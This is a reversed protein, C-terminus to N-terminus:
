AKRIPPMWDPLNLKNRKILYLQDLADRVAHRESEDGGSLRLQEMRIVLGAQAAAVREPLKGPDIETIALRYPRRWMSVLASM